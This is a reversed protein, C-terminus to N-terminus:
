VSIAVLSGPRYAQGPGAATSNTLGGPQGGPEVSAGRGSASSSAAEVGFPGDKPHAPDIHNKAYAVDACNRCLYGNVNIPTPYDASIAM